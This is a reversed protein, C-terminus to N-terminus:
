NRNHNELLVPQAGIPVQNNRIAITQGDLNRYQTYTSDVDYNVTQCIGKHCTENTDWVAKAVYGNPGRFGCTWIASGTTSCPQTMTAGVLWDYVYQYAIGAKDLKGNNPNWLQGVVYDDYAFWYFRKINLSWHFMYFQALFAAQLDPDTFCDSQVGGWSSETDWVPKGLQNYKALITRLDGVHGILDAAHPYKGCYYPPLAIYGHFAIVDAYNLGGLAAYAEWWHQGYPLHAGNPPSLMLSTPDIRLIIERADKALRVMQAFTGNWYYYNVPENWLEWYHIRGAAHTAVATIYDRWHQNTGTGDPNLDDPADCQGPGYHCKQDHPNSSAWQPTMALTLITDTANNQQAADLWSDLTSWDYVGERPNLDAWHTGTSWLRVGAINIVPWPSFWHTTMGFFHRPIPQPKSSPTAQLSSDFIVFPQLVLLIIACLCVFFKKV